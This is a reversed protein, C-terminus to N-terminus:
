ADLAAGFKSDLNWWYQRELGPLITFWHNGKLLPVSFGFVKPEKRVNVIFGVLLPDEFPLGHATKRRDFWAVSVPFPVRPHQCAAMLVNVDFNGTGLFKPTSEDM